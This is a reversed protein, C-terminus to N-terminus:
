GAAGCSIELRTAFLKSYDVGGPENFFAETLSQQNMALAEDPDPRVVEKGCNDPMDAVVLNADDYFDIATYFTPDYVGFHLNGDLAIAEEPTSEFLIILQQDELMAVIREPPNMAIDKGNATVFQFYGFEALSELIVSGVMELEQADLKLDKNQDFEFIVTSSFLDDFRWVHRLAKVQEDKTAIELRAEAFVHPHALAPAATACLACAGLLFSRIRIAM